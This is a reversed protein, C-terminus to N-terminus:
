HFWELLYVSINSYSAAESIFYGRRVRYAFVLLNQTGAFLNHLIRCDGNQSRRISGLPVNEFKGKDILQLVEPFTDDLRTRELKLKQLRPDGNEAM